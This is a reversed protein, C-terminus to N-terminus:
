IKACAQQPPLSSPSARKLFPKRWPHNAAPRHPVSSAPHPSQLNNSTKPTLSSTAHVTHSARQKATTKETQQSPERILAQANLCFLQLTAFLRMLKYYAVQYREQHHQQRILKRQQRLQQWSKKWMEQFRDNYVANRLILMKNVNEPKWHMGAGKLRAEVVLKNSSEVVGSGIPWGAAQYEPYRM